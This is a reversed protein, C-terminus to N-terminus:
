TLMKGKRDGREEAKWRPGAGINKAHGRIISSLPKERKGERIAGKDKKKNL